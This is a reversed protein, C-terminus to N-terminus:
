SGEPRLAGRLIVNTTVPEAVPAAVRTSGSGAARGAGPPRRLDHVDGPRVGADAADLDAPRRDARGRGRQLLESGEELGSAIPLLAAMVSVTTMVIPRLRTPGAQLLAARATSGASACCTPTTSWCSRTRASWASWCRWASCRSCRSRRQADPGHAGLAGVIALPLSMLVALPLTLSGFLMMMLMYMLLVAMGSRGSSTASRARRGAPGPRRLHRTYGAPLPVQEVAQRSARDPRRRGAARARARRRGDRQAAPQRPPDVTPISRRRAADHVPRARGRRQSGTVPLAARHRGADAARRRRTLVRIPIARRAPRGSSAPTPPSATSRPACASAPTARAHRGPRGRADLRDHRPAPDAPQRQQQRRRGRGPVTGCRRSSRRRWSRRAHGPRHGPGAVQIPAGGFGGFGFANPMGSASSRARSRTRQLARRVDEASSPRRRAPARAAPGAAGHDPGPQHRELAVGLRRRQRRRRDLLPTRVEPYSAAPRARDEAHRANTADLSTAAADDAHPRDREPRREPLLGPRDRRLALLAIGAAFSALGVAIVLWRQPLAVRLLREYGHELRVFGRDWARGFRTWRRQQRQKEARRALLLRALLPTLTFSVLLSSLTAATIVVAFPRLFQAPIGTTM